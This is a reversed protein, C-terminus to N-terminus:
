YPARLPPNQRIRPAPRLEMPRVRLRLKFPSSEEIVHSCSKCALWLGEIRAYGFETNKSRCRRCRCRLRGSMTLNALILCIIFLVFVALRGLDIATQWEDKLNGKHIVVASLLLLPFVIRALYHFFLFM